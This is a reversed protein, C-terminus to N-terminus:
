SRGPPEPSEPPEDLFEDHRRAVGVSAGPDRVSGVASRLLAWKQRTGREALLLDVANRVMASISVGEEDAAAELRRRQEPTLQVITRQM